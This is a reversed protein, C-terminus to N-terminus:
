ILLEGPVLKSKPMIAYDSSVTVTVDNSKVCNYGRKRTRIHM